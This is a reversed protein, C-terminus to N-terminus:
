RTSAIQYIVLESLAVEGDDLRIKTDPTDHIEASVKLIAETAALGSAFAAAHAGGELAALNAELVSRTPNSVRAYVNGQRPEDVGDQVYTSTQYIPTMIAGTTPDAEQGAHVALTEIKM